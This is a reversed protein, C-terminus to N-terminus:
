IGMNRVDIWSTLTRRRYGDEFDDDTWEQDQRRTRARLEIRVVRVDGLSAPASTTSGDKMLYVVQFDEIDEAFAQAPLGNTSRMLVPHGQDTIQDVYYTAESMVMVQPDDDTDYVNTLNSESHIEYWGEGENTDVHDVTFWEQQGTDDWIFARLGTQFCGVDDHTHMTNSQTSKGLTVHCDSLSQRLTLSDPDTDDSLIFDLGAPFNGCGAMRLNRTLEDMSVRINQQMEAVQEQILWQKQQTLYLSLASSVIIGLIATAVLMEVLSFGASRKLIKTKM